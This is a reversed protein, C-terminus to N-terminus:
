MCTMKDLLLGIVEKKVRENGNFIYRDHDNGDNINVDLPISRSIKNVDGVNRDCVSRHTKGQRKLKSYLKIAGEMISHQENKLKEDLEFDNLAKYMKM